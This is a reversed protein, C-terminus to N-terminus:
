ISKTMKIHPIGDELYQEGMSVFGMNQYFDNLYTQASLEVVMNQQTNDIYDLTAAMIQKGFGQRRYEPDVVVRGIALNEFYDGPMFMRTYAVLKGNLMGLVHIAKQDKNDIDQYICEQEVVFVESRLRLVEYIEKANLADFTKVVIKLM